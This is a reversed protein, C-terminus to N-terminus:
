QMLGIITEYCKEYTFYNDHVFKSRRSLEEYDANELIKPIDKIQDPRIKIGYDFPLNFPEWFEDSIYVPVCGLAMAEFMRFSTIGYGRPCLAFKTRRLILDYDSKSINDLRVYYYNHREVMAGRLPHTNQGIFSMQIDKENIEALQNNLPYSILPIPYYGPKKCGMSFVLLDLGSVDNLIGDDYQIITFYKLSKDLSNIYDQLIDMSKKDKGYGLNVYYATWQIDLYVRNVNEHETFRNLFYREFPITNGQPYEINQIPKFKKL